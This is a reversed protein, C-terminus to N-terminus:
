QEVPLYIKKRNKKLAITLHKGTQRKFAELGLDQRVIRSMTRAAIDMEWAM